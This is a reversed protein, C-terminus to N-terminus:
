AAEEGGGEVEDDAAERVEAPVRGLATLIVADEWDGSDPDGTRSFAVVGSFRDKMRQATRIAHAGSSAIVPEGTGFRGKPGAIFPLVVFYTQKAM